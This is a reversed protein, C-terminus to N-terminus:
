RISEAQLTLINKGLICLAVIRFLDHFVLSFYSVQGLAFFLSASKGAEGSNEKM